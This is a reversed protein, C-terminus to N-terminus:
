QYVTVALKTKMKLGILEASETLTGDSNGCFENNLLIETNNVKIAGCNAPFALEFEESMKEINFIGEKLWYKLLDHQKQLIYLDDLLKKPKDFNMDLASIILILFLIAITSEVTLTFGSKNV